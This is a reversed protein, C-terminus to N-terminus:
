EFTLEITLAHQESGDKASEEFLLLTGSTDGNDVWDVIIEFDGWYPGGESATTFGETLIDGSENLLRYQVTAEYVRAQGQVIFGTSVISNQTPIEIRFAENELLQDSVNDNKMEIETTHADDQEKTENQQNNSEISDPVDENDDIEVEIEVQTDASTEGELVVEKKEDVCALLM